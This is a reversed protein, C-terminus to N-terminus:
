PPKVSRHSQGEEKTLLYTGEEKKEEVNFNLSVSFTCLHLRDVERQM